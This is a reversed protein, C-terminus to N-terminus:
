GFTFAYGSIGPAFRLTLRHRGARPLDVLRYLRQASVTAAGGEVDEGALRDPLPRGDLLVQLRGPRGPSGLVLFVKEAGFEAEIEAERVATAREQSIRWTGGFSFGDTGPAPAPGFARLGTAARLEAASSVQPLNVWGQARLAGLYTEPTTVGASATEVRARAGAGLEGEGAEALLTRIASETLDYSGEGFHVYRVQGEADILYKAPWYQNGFATFTGLENDQVVPYEIGNQEIADAVNGADKEFPFEPSHVGVITLGRDRYEEDWARLYPLTRICNICTYTWFDILVVRGRLGEMTLAEGDDTNFWSQTATFDPALGLRPLELGEELERAGAEEAGGHGSVAALDGELVESEELEGTPNVLIAPLDDAIATQFRTDLDAAMVVAAALMVAGLAMQVRSRIPSLREALRRGGLLLAYLVLASGIAYSLAVALRGATFDQAASVTIVGALIPGACPAYVLGLSAGLLLGSGFGDGGVRAPAPAIRSLWAEIRDGVPPVLLSLGFAVLVVIALTRAIDDPLGLADIVYVLAVTAFTFALVLGTVVGLPRRRGGTVGVSLLAPLIPLVCPSLATGAGAVLAFLMLLVV